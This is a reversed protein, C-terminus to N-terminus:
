AAQAIRRATNAHWQGGRKTQHGEDNLQAAITRWTSGNARLERIRQVVTQEGAVPVLARRGDENPESYRQGFPARGVAVGESRLHEMAAKTREGIAEREWESVVALMRLVMRGAATRTDISDGVSLLEWREGFRKPEILWGLDVVSRTLRDLKAVVLGDARKSRMADLAQQLGERDLSKASVGADVCIEVLELDLALAYAELKARQAALSVGDNAQEITSVRIYGVVKTAKTM